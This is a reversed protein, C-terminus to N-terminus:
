RKELKDMTSMYYHNNYFESRGPDTHNFRFRYQKVISWDHYRKNLDSYEFYDYQSYDSLIRRYEDDESDYNPDKKIDFADIRCSEEIKRKVKRKENALYHRHKKSYYSRKMESKSPM